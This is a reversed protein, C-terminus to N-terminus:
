TPSPIVRKGEGRSPLPPIIKEAAGASLRVKVNDILRASGLWAALLISLQTDDASARRLDETRRISVYEPRFGTEELKTVAEKEIEDMRKKRYRLQDAATKLIKFIAPAKKREEKTLYANRSSIALGDPERVVPMGIVEVPMCLDHVMRKIVLLQQYDKEGFLAADPQVNIFLKSVVTAVGSFHEPRSKGCLMDSLGPVNIRTDIATGGPYLQKLDPTFLLDLGYKELKNKDEALTSPYKDYDEGRGFQIPNVFISLVTRDAIDRARNLLSIHGDHLNGMTPVLAISHGARKWKNITSRLGNLNSATEM